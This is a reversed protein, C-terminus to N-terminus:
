DSNIRPGNLTEFVSLPILRGGEHFKNAQLPSPCKKDVRLEVGAQHDDPKLMTGLQPLYHPTEKNALM